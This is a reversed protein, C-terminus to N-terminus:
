ISGARPPATSERVILETAIRTRQPIEEGRIRAHVVEAVATGLKDFDQRITTLPPLMHRATPLDDFGIISVDQPVRIGREVLGHIVGLAMEDNAVVMATFDPVSTLSAAFEYGSDPTWDGIVIPRERMGWSKARAHFARERSRADLWDLPGSLHLVDRHGLSALHDVAEAMGAQQDVSVTLFSPDKESKVVLTPVGIDITRLMAVSSSRPAIVCLADIGLGTLHEIASAPTMDQDNRLAVSTVSYGKARAAREIARLTSSPGFEAGSEVMVGIRDTRQTVLSRAAVNPRYNLEDVAKLVKQRTSDKINPHGSLVRSVTMHSVGAIAAVQKLGPRGAVVRVEEAGRALAGCVGSRAPPVSKEITLM